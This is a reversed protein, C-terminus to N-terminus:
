LKAGQDLLQSLSSLPVLTRRGVHVTALHGGKILAYVSSRGLALAAAAEDISCALKLPAQPVSTDNKMQFARRQHLAIWICGSLLPDVVFFFRQPLKFLWDL